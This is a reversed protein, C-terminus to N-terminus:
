VVPFVVIEEFSSQPWTSVVQYKFKMYHYMARWPGVVELLIAHATQSPGSGLYGWSLGSPSHNVYRLSEEAFIEKGDVYLHTDTWKSTVGKVSMLLPPMADLEKEKLIYLFETSVWKAYDEAPYESHDKLMGAVEVRECELYEVMSSLAVQFANKVNHLQDFAIDALQLLEKDNM